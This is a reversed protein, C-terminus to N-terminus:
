CNSIIFAPYSFHFQTGPLSALSSQNHYLLYIVFAPYCCHLKVQDNGAQRSKSCTPSKLAITIDLRRTALTFRLIPYSLHYSLAPYHYHLKSLINSVLAPYRFHLQETGFAPYCIHVKSKAM